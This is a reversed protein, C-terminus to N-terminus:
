SINNANKIKGRHNKSFIYSLSRQDTRLVFHGSILYYNWHRVAAIVALAEKEIAPLKLEAGGLTRSFFGVPRGSQLLTAGIAHDSADTELTFPKTDDVAAVVSDIIEKKMYEFVDCAESPLPFTSEQSFPRVKDSFNQIFQSYYAFFGMVRAHGKPTTPLELEILPKLRDPDPYIQGDKM